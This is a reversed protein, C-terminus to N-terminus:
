GSMRLQIIRSRSMYRTNTGTVSRSGTTSTSTSTSTGALINRISEFGWPDSPVSTVTVIVTTTTMIIRTVLRDTRTTTTPYLHRSCKSPRRRPGHGNPDWDIM